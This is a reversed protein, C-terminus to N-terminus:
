VSRSKWTGRHFWAAVLLGRAAATAAIVWWVAEVGQELELALLWALPIRLLSLSASIVMPPVTLGAGGFAGELVIDAAQLVLCWSVIRFYAAAVPRADATAPDLLTLAGAVADGRVLLVLGWVGCLTGCQLVARWAVREAGDPRGAGLEQGVLASAAASWGLCLVFAFGEGTHGLGLGAQAAPGGAAGVIRYLVLYIGNFFLGAVGVPVGVRAIRRFVVPDLGLLGPRGLPTDTRLRLAEDDPRARGLHGARALSALALTAGVATALLTALAAGAVGLAPVPGFGFILVPDLAVNLALSLAAILFPTRTNGRGRFVADTAQQLLIIGGGAWVVRTYASGAEAVPPEADVLRFALPTALAGLLGVVLGVAAAWGLGQAAVYRAAGPRGAGVYRAVLATLGIGVLGALAGYIWVTVTSISLGAVADTGLRAVFAMDVARHILLLMASGAAPVALSLIRRDLSPAASV